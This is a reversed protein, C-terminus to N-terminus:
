STTSTDDSNGKETPPTSPKPKRLSVIERVLTTLGSFLARSEIVPTTVNESLFDSTGKLTAAIEQLSRIVPRVEEQVVNITSAIQLLVIVIALGIVMGQMVLLIIFLDRVIAVLNAVNDSDGTILAAVLSLLLGLAFLAIVVGSWFAAKTVIDAQEYAQGVPALRKLVAEWLKRPIYLLIDSVQEGVGKRVPEAM